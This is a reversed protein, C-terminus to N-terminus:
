KKKKAAPKVPQAVEAVPESDLGLGFEETAVGTAEAPEGAKAVKIVDGAEVEEAEPVMIQLLLGNEDDSIVVAEARNLAPYVTSAKRSAGWSVVNDSNGFKKVMSGVGRKVLLFGFDDDVGILVDILTEPAVVGKRFVLGVRGNNISVTVKAKKSAASENVKKGIFAM